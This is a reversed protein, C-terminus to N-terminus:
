RPWDAFPAAVDRLSLLRIPGASGVVARHELTNYGWGALFLRAAGLGPTARVLELTELMDEIFWLGRADSPLAHERALRLLSEPKAVARDPERGVIPLTALRPHRAALLARAFREAKTTVVAVRVGDDIAQVVREGVGPYFAHHALWDKPDAAFWADRAANLARALREADVPAHELLRRATTRWAERDVLEADAVRTVLAHLLLPMEWGSEVLPRAASFERAVAAARAMDAGPWVAAYARRASEFYEPRGDCLVGDFDLALLCPSESM